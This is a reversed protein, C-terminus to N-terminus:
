QNTENKSLIIRGDILLPIKEYSEQNSTKFTVIVYFFKNNENDEKNKDIKISQIAISDFIICNYNFKKMLHV